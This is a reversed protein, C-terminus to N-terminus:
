RRFDDNDRKFSGGMGEELGDSGMELLFFREM